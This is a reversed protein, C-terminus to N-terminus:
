GKSRCVLDLGSPLQVMSEIGQGPDGGLVWPKCAQRNAGVCTSPKCALASRFPTKM